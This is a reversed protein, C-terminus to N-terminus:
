FQRKRKGGKHPSPNLRDYAAESFYKFAAKCGCVECELDAGKDAVCDYGCNICVVYVKSM